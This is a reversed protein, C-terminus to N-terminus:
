LIDDDEKKVLEADLDVGSTDEEQVPNGSSVPEVCSTWADGGYLKICSESIDYILMGNVPTTVAATNAIRPLVLGSNTSVVDLVGEPSTTGIGVQASVAMGTIFLLACIKTIM